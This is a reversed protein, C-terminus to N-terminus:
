HSVKAYKAPTKDKHKWRNHSWLYLEPKQHIQTELIDLYRDTIGYEPVENPRNTLLVLEAEYFGRKVKDVKLYVVTLDFRKAIREAGVFVPVKVGMFRRWYHARKWSATQDSVMAYMALLQNQQNQIIYAPTERPTMLTANFKARASKILRDFYPNIIPQYVGYSKFKMQTGMVIMWEWSAYHSCLLVVSKGEQELQRLLEPNTVKFRKALQQPSISFTKVMELLTDCFYAYFKKKIYGIEQASKDPFALHLNKNIVGKRYGFLRVWFNLFDSVAYFAWFPLRSILWLFPFSLIYVLLHM